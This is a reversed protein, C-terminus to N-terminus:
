LLFDKMRQSYAWENDYWGLITVMDEVVGTSLTDIIVSHANGIYDSSVLPETSVDMIGKLLSTAQDFFIDNVQQISMKEKLQAVVQLLSVNGVPVRIASACVKKAIHPMIKEVMRAAGTTTPIINLAAARARRPDKHLGDLLVQSNTYAHTTIVHATSFGCEDHLVKLTPLLANTTCSGMSVIVHKDQEYDQENVGLNITIDEGSAPASILVRKAGNKIHKRAVHAQTAAGTCEVVWDINFPQWNLSDFDHENILKIQQGDIILMDGEQVVDGPYQGMITDYKFLTGVHEIEHNGINVVAVKIRSIAFPDQMISRLFSKGIRGLGNIAITIM